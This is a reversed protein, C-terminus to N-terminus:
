VTQFEITIAVAIAGDLNFNLAEGPATECIFTKGEHSFGGGDIALPHAATIDTTGSRFKGNVASSSKNQILANTVRIRKGAVAPVIENDGLDAIDESAKLVPLGEIIGFTPM